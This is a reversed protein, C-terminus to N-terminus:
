ESKIGWHDSPGIGVSLSRKNGYSPAPPSYSPAPPSYSPAPPSYSPSPSDYSPSPTEYSPAPASYSQAPASYGSHKPKTSSCVKKDLNKPVDRNVQRPIKICKKNPVAKCVKKPIQKGVQIPDQTCITKPFERCEKRPVNIPVDKCKEKPVKECEQHYGYGHCKQEYSTSCKQEYELDTVTEYVVECQKKYSTTCKEKSKTDFVTRCKTETFENCDKQYGIDKGTEYGESCEVKFVTFCKTDVTFAVKTVFLTEKSKECKFNPRAPGYPGPAKPQIKQGSDSGYSVLGGDHDGEYGEHGGGSSSYGGSSHSGGGGGGHGGEGYSRKNIAPDHEIKLSDREINTQINGFGPLVYSKENFQDSEEVVLKETKESPEHTPTSFATFAGPPIDIDSPKNGASQLNVSASDFKKPIRDFNFFGAVEKDFDFQGVVCNISFILIFSTCFRDM